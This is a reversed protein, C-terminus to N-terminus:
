KRENVIAWAVGGGPRRRCGASEEQSPCPRLHAPGAPDRGFPRRRCPRAACSALEAAAQAGRNQPNPSNVWGGPVWSPELTCTPLTMMSCRMLSGTRRPVGEPIQRLLRALQIEQGPEPGGFRLRANSSSTM